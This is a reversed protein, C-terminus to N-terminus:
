GSNEEMRRIVEEWQTDTLDFNAERITYGLFLEDIPDIKDLSIITSKSILEYSDSGNSPYEYDYPVLEYMLPSYDYEAIDERTEKTPILLTISVILFIVAISGLAWSLRAVLRKPREKEISLGKIKSIVKKPFHEFYFEPPGIEHSRSVDEFIKRMVELEERCHSCKEIHSRLMERGKKSLEGSLFEIISETAKKCRM